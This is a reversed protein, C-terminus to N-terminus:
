VAGELKLLMEKWGAPGSFGGIRGDSGIVRHCPVIIPHRNAALAQGAARWALPSGAREAAERYSCVQGYPIKSVENLLVATFRGYGSHDLAYGSWDVAEGEFYRKLDDGLKLWPLKAPEAKVELKKGPFLIEYLGNKNFIIIFKGESTTTFDFFLKAGSM